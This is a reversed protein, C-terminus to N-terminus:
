QVIRLQGPVSIVVNIYQGQVLHPTGDVEITKGKFRDASGGLKTWVTKPILVSIMKYNQLQREGIQLFATESDMMGGHLVKGPNSNRDAYPLELVVRERALERVRVGLGAGYPSEEVWRQVSENTVRM